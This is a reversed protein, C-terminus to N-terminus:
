KLVNDEWFLRCENVYENFDPLMLLRRKALEGYADQEEKAAEKQKEKEKVQM